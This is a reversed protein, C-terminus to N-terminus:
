LDKTAAEGPDIKNKIGDLGAMLLAAFFPIPQRNPRSVKSGEQQKQLSLMLYELAQRGTKASYALLVPAEFGPILRQSNWYTRSRM